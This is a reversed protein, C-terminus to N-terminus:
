YEDFQDDSNSSGLEEKSSMKNYSLFIVVPLVIAVLLIIWWYDILTDFPGQEDDDKESSITFSITEEAENGAHDVAKISLQHDGSDLNSFEKTTNTGVDRWAGDDIKIEYHHIGSNEDVGTYNTIISKSSIETGESPSIVDITPGTRDVGFSVVSEVTNGAKDFGKVRITHDGEEVSSLQHTTLNSKEVWDGDDIKLEYHDIATTNDSGSWEVPIDTENRITNALPNQITVIPSTTDVTFNVGTKYANGAEDAAKIDARHSGDSLTFTHSTQLGIYMWDGKDLRLSYNDISTVEDRGSWSVTVSSNSIKTYNEPSSISVAPDTTDVTFNIEKSEYEGANDFVRVEVTHNGESLSFTYSTDQGIDNWNDGNSRVEYHDIGSTGDDGNWQVAVSSSSIKEDPDPSTLILTPPTKDLGCVAEASNKTAEVNGSNDGAMSYFEYHGDGEPFDFSWKWPDSDDRSFKNWDTWSVNDSSYRYWLTTNKVGSYSDVASASVNLINSDHWYYSINDVSSDPPITDETKFSWSFNEGEKGYIDEYSSVELTINSDTQWESTHTWRGTDNEINTSDWGLFTYSVLPGSTQNLDPIVSTNLTETFVISVNKNANIYKEDPTPHTIDVGPPAQNFGCISEASSKAGETNNAKDVAISYFEYYGEDKPFDFSWNWDPTSDTYFETWGTWSSNDPSYRYYLTVNKVGSNWDSATATILATTSNEWYPSIPDVSSNPKTTDETKFSWSYNNGEISYLDQFGSVELTINSDLDWQESHNWRVTDNERDTSDWGLFTYNVMPGSTQKLVPIASTNLTEDFVITVNKDISVDFDGEDPDTYNVEPIKSYGCVAGASSKSDESNNANDVAISYFEYYGEGEPFDFDWQWPSTVKAGFKTWDSWSSNDDSYRYYLTLNKVGTNWDEVTVSLNIPTTNAWYPSIDDVSSSPPQTDKTIFDWSYNKWTWGYIDEFNSVQLTINSDTDWNATHNWIATDNEVNTSGWGVFNYSVSPGSTQNLQPVMSSNLTDNFVVTINKDIDVDTQNQYPVTSIVYPPAKNYGCIAEASNNLVNSNNVNDYSVSSFEYYGEGDPFYFSYELPSSTKTMLKTWNSWTNNNPSYRYYLSTNKLGTNWDNAAVSINIPDSSRWYPSIDDVDSVPPITDNTKFSWFYNNGKNGTVDEYGSVEFSMNEDTEWDVAHTWTATDNERITTSWGTFNYNVSTGSSQNLDPINSTNLSANFVLRINRDVSIDTGNDKPNNEVVYPGWGIPKMLPYRDSTTGGEIDYNTDGLGDSGPQDQNVGRYEDLGNYASWYNGGYPYGEDWDNDQNDYASNNFFNNHSILNNGSTIYVGYVNNSIDNMKIINSSSQTTLSLGLSPGPSGDDTDIGEGAPGETNNFIKNSFVNNEDSRFFSIGASRGGDGGNGYYGGSGGTGGVIDHLENRIFSNNDSRKCYIALSDGGDGGPEYYGGTEGPVGKFGSVTNNEIISNKTELLTIGSSLADNSRDIIIPSSKSSINFGRVRLDSDNHFYLIPEGSITNLSTNDPHSGILPTVMNEISSSDLRIGSSVGNAGESGGGNLSLIQNSKLENETSDELYFGAATGGIGEGGDPRGLGGRGATMNSVHNHSFNNRISSSVYFGSSIGGAGGSGYRASIGGQGGKLGKISNNTLNNNSSRDIYLGTAIGGDGGDSSDDKRGIGGPTANFGSINNGRIISHDTNLLAIGTSICESNGNEDYDGLMIPATNSTINFSNVIVDSKNYLYFIPSGDVTNLESGNPINEDFHTINNNYSSEDMWIGSSTGKLSAYSPSLRGHTGKIGGELDSFGNSYFDNSTSSSLHIGGSIGGNGGYGDQGYTGGKGGTLNDIHNSGIKNSTSDKLHIGFVNGGPGGNGYYGGTGGKGGTIHHIHNFSLDNDKSSLVYMGVSNGGCGGGGYWCTGSAGPMSDFGSITVNKVLSNETKILALGVSLGGDGGPKGNVNEGEVLIPISDVTININRIDLGTRNYVYLIPKGDISNTLAENPSGESIPTIKNDYSNRDIWIGASSGKPGSSDGFNTGSGGELHYLDNCVITNDISNVIHIAAVTGGAGGNGLPVSGGMRGGSGGTLNYIDNSLVESQSSGSLFIGSSEGGEGGTGYSGSEGGAGGKLEKITNYSLNVSLSNGLYIGLGRGGSGGNNVYGSSDGGNGGNLDSITNNVLLCNLSSDVYIGVAEHGDGGTNGDSGDEGDINKITNKTINSYDGEVYVGYSGNEISFQTVNVWDATISVVDGNTRGNIITNEKSEGELTITKNITVTENYMGAYVFVTDGDSANDIADQISTYNGAGTGGVYYTAADTSRTELVIFTSFGALVLICVIWVSRVKGNIFSM